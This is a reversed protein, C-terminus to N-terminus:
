EYSRGVAAVEKARTDPLHEDAVAIEEDPVASPPNEPTHIESGRQLRRWLGLRCRIGMPPRGPVVEDVRAPDRSLGWGYRYLIGLNFLGDVEDGQNAAM